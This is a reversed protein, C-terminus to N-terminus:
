VIASIAWPWWSWFLHRLRAGYHLTGKPAVQRPDPALRHRWEHVVRQSRWRRRTRHYSNMPVRERWRRGPRDGGARMGGDYLCHSLSGDSSDLMTALTKSTKHTIVP